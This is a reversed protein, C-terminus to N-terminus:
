RRATWVRGNVRIVVADVTMFQALTQEIQARVRDIGCSRDLQMLHHSFDLTAIGEELSISNLRLGAPLRSFYGADEEEDTVGMLLYFVAGRALSRSDGPLERALPFVLSCDSISGLERNPFYAYVTRVSDSKSPAPLIVPISVLGREKGTEPDIDYVDLRGPGGWDSTFSIKESFPAPTTSDRPTIRIDKSAVAVITDYLLRVHLVSDAAVGKGKLQLSGGFLTDGPAPSSLTIIDSRTPIDNLDAVEAEVAEKGSSEKEGVEAVEDSGCAIVHFSLLLPICLAARITM